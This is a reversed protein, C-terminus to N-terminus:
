GTLATSAKARGGAIGPVIHSWTVVAEGTSRAIAARSVGFGRVIEPTLQQPAAFGAASRRLSAYVVTSGPREVSWSVLLVGRPGAAIDNLAAGPVGASLTTPARPGSAVVRALKVALAGRETGTWAVYLRGESDVVPLTLSTEPLGATAHTACELQYARWRGRDLQAIGARLATPRDEGVDATEWALAVRGGPTIAARVTANTIHEARAALRARGWSQGSRRVRAYVGGRSWWALVRDGGDNMAAAGTGGPRLTRPTAFKGGPPRERVKTVGREDQWAVLADGRADAATVFRGLLVGEALTRQTGFSGDSGGFAHVLRWRPRSFRGLSSVRRAVLLARRSGYLHIQANGWTVGALDAARQWGGGPARVALGTFKSPSRARTGEWSLLGRGTADFALNLPSLFGDGPISESRWQAGAAIPTAM